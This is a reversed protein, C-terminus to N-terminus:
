TTSQEGRYRKLKVHPAGCFTQGQAPEHTLHVGGRGVGLRALSPFAMGHTTRRFLRAPATSRLRGAPYKSSSARVHGSWRHPVASIQRLLPSLSSFLLKSCLRSGPTQSSPRLEQWPEPHRSFLHPESVPWLVTVIPAPATSRHRALSIAIASSKGSSLYSKLGVGACRDNASCSQVCGARVIEEYIDSVSFLRRASSSGDRAFYLVLASTTAKTLFDNSSPAAAMLALPSAPSAPIITSGNAFWCTRTNSHAYPNM